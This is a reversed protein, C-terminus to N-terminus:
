GDILGEWTKAGDDGDGGGSVRARAVPTLGLEAALQRAITMASHMTRFAPHPRPASTESQVFMGEATLVAQCQRVQAQALCYNEVNGMDETTLIRRDTLGPMIRKWETKAEKPLWGPAVPVKGKGGEIAHLQPKRGRM